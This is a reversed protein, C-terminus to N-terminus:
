PPTDTMNIAKRLLEPLESKFETIALKVAQYHLNELHRNLKTTFVYELYAEFHNLLQQMEAENLKREPHSAPQKATVDANWILETAMQAISHAEPHLHLGGEAAHLSAVQGFDPIVETLTPIDVPKGDVDVINTLLPLDPPEIPTM